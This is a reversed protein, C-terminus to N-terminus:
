VLEVTLPNYSYLWKNRDAGENRKSFEARIAEETNLHFLRRNATSQNVVKATRDVRNREYRKLAAPITPEMALTRTLVAGDEISMVAGQALYPLTPHAADGLLTARPTSWTMVPPRNHLSWRFCQDKDAHDIVAQLAPHWGAYDAKLKEWPFKMTWSEEFVEETEVIGVFNLLAGGRLYYCVAHGGPGMFVSMVKELHPQPLREIPVTIRWAADGTYTAVADGLIQRRVASKLGDAGILFDGRAATGDEFKLEVGKDDETFGTVKKNLRIIDPDAQRARAALIEHFDARHMQTYPAGHTREHEEALSFRQIVEGTDHLRFVYAGPHVGVRRIDPELGLDRLVHMANASVQIGAGIEGIAPAQEYIEVQHGAKTLCSAAALGGLGAGAILIKYSPM